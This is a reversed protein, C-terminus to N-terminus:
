SVNVQGATLECVMGAPGANVVTTRGQLLARGGSAHIHGCVILPPQVREMAARIAVSGLSRGSSAVDLIGQPPSHTVLVAHRPCGTLFVEAEEESLDYSWSGFPTVPVAGGVGWFEIDNIRVGSGHLVHAAPWERCAATLEDTTESNGAVLVSPQTITALTDIV